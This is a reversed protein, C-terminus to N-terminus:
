LGIRSPDPVNLDRLFSARDIIEQLEALDNTQSPDIVSIGTLEFLGRRNRSYNRDESIFVRAKSKVASDFHRVDFTRPSQQLISAIEAHLASPEMDSIRFTDSFRLQTTDATVLSPVAYPITNKDHWDRDGPDYPFHILRISKERWLKKILPRFAGRECYAITPHTM